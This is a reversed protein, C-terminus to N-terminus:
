KELVFKVQLSEPWPTIGVPEPKIPHNKDFMRKRYKMPIPFRKKFGNQTMDHAYCTVQMTMPQKKFCSCKEFVETEFWYPSKPEAKWMADIADVLSKLQLDRYSHLDKVKGNEYVVVQVSTITPRLLNRFWVSLNFM